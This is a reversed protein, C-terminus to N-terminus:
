LALATAAFEATTPNAGPQGGFRFLSKKEKLQMISKNSVVQCSMM